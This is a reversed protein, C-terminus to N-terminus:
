YQKDRQVRCTHVVNDTSTAKEDSTQILPNPALPPSAIAERPHKLHSCNTRHITFQMLAFTPSVAHNEPKSPLASEPDM